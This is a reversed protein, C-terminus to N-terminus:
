VHLQPRILTNIAAYANAADAREEPTIKDYVTTYRSITSYTLLRDFHPYISKLFTSVLFKRHERSLPLLQHKEVFYQDILHITAYYITTIEWDM